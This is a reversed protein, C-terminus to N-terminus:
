NVFLLKLDDMSCFWDSWYFNWGLMFYNVTLICFNGIERIVLSWLILWLNTFNDKEFSFWVFLCVLWYCICVIICIRECLFMDSRSVWSSELLSQIDKQVFCLFIFWCNDDASSFQNVLYLCVFLSLLLRVEIKLPSTVPAYREVVKGEKNVLFKTFNWKIGNGFLGGKQLKLFKYLPAENKGNM